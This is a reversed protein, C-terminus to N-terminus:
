VFRIHTNHFRIHTNKQKEESPQRDQEKEKILRLCDLYETTNILDKYTLCREHCWNRPLYQVICKQCSHLEQILIKMVYITEEDNNNLLTVRENLITNYHRQISEYVVCYFRNSNLVRFTSNEHTSRITYYLETMLRIKEIYKKQYKASQKDKIKKLRKEIKDLENFKNKITYVFWKRLQELAPTTDEEEEELEESEEEELEEEERTDLEKLGESLGNILSLVVEKLLLNFLLCTILFEIINM